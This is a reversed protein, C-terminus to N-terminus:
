SQLIRQNLLLHHLISIKKIMGLGPFSINAVYNRLMDIAISNDEPRNDFFDIAKLAAEAFKGQINSNDYTNSHSCFHKIYIQDPEKQYTLHIAVVNPLVGGDRYENPVVTYDAYGDYQEEQFYAFEESFLEEDTKLYEKNATKAEFNDSLTIIEKDDSTVAHKIRRRPTDTIVKTITNNHILKIIDEEADSATKSIILIVNQYQREDITEVIKSINNKLIFTPSWLSIDPFDTETSLDLWQNACDGNEPNLIIGYKMANASMTIAARKLANKNDKVPEIIPFVKSANGQLSEAFDRLALLEFQRGRLYPYYM